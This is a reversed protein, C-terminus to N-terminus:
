KGSGVAQVRGLEDGKQGYVGAITGLMLIGCILKKM